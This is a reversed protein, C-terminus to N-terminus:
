WWWFSATNVVVLAKGKFQQCMDITDKSRLKPLEHQLLAPCQEAAVPGALVAFVLSAALLYPKM